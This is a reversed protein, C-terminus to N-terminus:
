RQPRPRCASTPSSAPRSTPNSAVYRRALARRVRGADSASEALSPLPLVFNRSGVAPEFVLREGDAGTDLETRVVPALSPPAIEVTLDGRPRVRCARLWRKAPIRCGLQPVHLSPTIAYTPEASM